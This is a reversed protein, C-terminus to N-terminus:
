VCRVIDLYHKKYSGGRGIRPAVGRWQLVRAVGKGVNCHLFLLFIALIVDMDQTLLATPVPAAPVAM